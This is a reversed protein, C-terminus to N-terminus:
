AGLSRDKDMGGAHFAEYGPGPCHWSAGALWTGTRKLFTASTDLEYVIGGYGVQMFESYSPQQAIFSKLM